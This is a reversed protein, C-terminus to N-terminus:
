NPIVSTSMKEKISRALKEIVEAKHITEPSLKGKESKEVDEKLDTAMKLLKASDDTVQQKRIANIASFRQESLGQQRMRAQDSFDPPRNIFEPINRPTNPPNNQQLLGWGILPILVMVVLGVFLGAERASPRRFSFIRAPLRRHLRM